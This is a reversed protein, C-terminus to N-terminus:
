LFALAWLSDAFNSGFFTVRWQRFTCTQLDCAFIHHVMAQIHLHASNVGLPQHLQCWAEELTGVRVLQRPALLSLAQLGQVVAVIVGVRPTKGTTAASQVAQAARRRDQFAPCHELVTCMSSRSRPLNMRTHANSQIHQGREFASKDYLHLSKVMSEITYVTSSIAIALAM